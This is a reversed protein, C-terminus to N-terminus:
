MRISKMKAIVNTNMPNFTQCTLTQRFPFTVSFGCYEVFLFLLHLQSNFLAGNYSNHRTSVAKWDLPGELIASFFLYSNHLKQTSNSAILTESIM